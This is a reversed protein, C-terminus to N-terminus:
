RVRKVTVVFRAKATNGSSDVSTCTVTTRGVRFVSGSKPVCSAPVPGDTTDAASVTYRVRASKASRTKVIMPSAGTIQPPTTDFTVGDVNLTGTWTVFAFGTGSGREKVDYDLTGSGSAGAYRGAGGSVTAATSRVVSGDVLCGTSRTALDIEGRGAVLLAVQARMHGCRSGFDDYYFTYTTAVKGLGPIVRDGVSVMSYCNTLTPTGAPCEARDFNIRLTGKVQLTGVSDAQAVASSGVAAALLLLALLALLSLRRYM